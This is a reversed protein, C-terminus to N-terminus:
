REGFGRPGSKPKPKKEEVPPLPPLLPAEKEVQRKELWDSVSLYVVGATVVILGLFATTLLVSITVDTAVVSEDVYEGVSSAAEGAADVLSDSVPLDAARATLCSSWFTVSVLAPLASACFTSIHVAPSPPTSSCSRSVSVTSDHGKSSQCITRRVISQSGRPGSLAPRSSSGLGSETSYTESVLTSLSSSCVVPKHSHSRVCTRPSNGSSATAEIRESPTCLCKDSKLRLTTRLLSTHAQSLSLVPYARATIPALSPFSALAMAPMTM